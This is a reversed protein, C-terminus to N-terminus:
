RDQLSSGADKVAYAKFNEELATLTPFTASFCRALAAEFAVGTASLELLQLFQQRDAAVLFRVLRESEDYFTEVQAAPPYNMTTLTSLPLLDEAKIGNSYPKSLYGRARQYSAHAGKSVYQAFGENLWLPITSGYFQRLLLHVIEHGLSNDTFRYAPNRVIFLSGGSQIGGTWPELHGATQFSQWDEPREFIYIHAKTAAPAAEKGLEKIIVRFHFEAEVAVPTAVFSRQYHYIFHDTEAHKWDAARIALAQTGLPNRDQESLQSFEVETLANLGSVPALQAAATGGTILLVTFAIARLATFSM